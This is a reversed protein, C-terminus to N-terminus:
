SFNLILYIKANVMSVQQDESLDAIHRIDVKNVCVFLPKNAFLPKISEFLEVQHCFVVGRGSSSECCRSQGSRQSVVSPKIEGTPHM